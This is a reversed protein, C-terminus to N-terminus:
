LIDVRALACPLLKLDIKGAVSEVPDTERQRFREPSEMAEVCNTEDLYRIRAKCTGTKIKIEHTMGTLNAVLVRKRNKSDLATMGDIQLPHSTHTPYLRNCDALDALIHYMPFVSGPIAPFLDPLPSGSETEMIGAWGTTEFYTLSHVKTSLGLRALSGLTWGASFLSMQRVDISAPLRESSSNTALSTANPNSRPRLTIPSIVTSRPAFDQVTEVTHIQAELNEVLTTHDVAHVQPNISYCPLAQSDQQLRHRNLETFFSNTGGAILVNQALPSLKQKAARLWQEPTSPKSDHYILWLSVNPRISEFERAFADLEAEGIDSLFLAIHLTCGIAASEVSALALRAAWDTSSLRLEVRLHSIKLSKLRDTERPSLPQGHSAMSLGIRPKSLVPTTSISLQAGRGLLVPFIKRAPSPVSVSVTQQIRTGNPVEVPFPLDLPTSYTKFSADTWNRQDEMEFIDGAFRVEARVGPIPENVIARIGKFPQHPSIHRPFIGEEVTGDVKEISCPKGACELIPHLVCIGIRNKLFTSAATGDFEFTVTGDATGSVVGSWRFDIERQKCIADFTIRFAASTKEIQLNTIEPPITTWNRDRVAAYICRVTEHDGIRIYRLFGTSKEFQMTLSGANLPIPEEAPIDTGFRLLAPTLPNM